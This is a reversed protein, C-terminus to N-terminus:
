ACRLFRRDRLLHTSRQRTTFLLLSLSVGMLAAVAWYVTKAAGTSMQAARFSTLLLVGLPAFIAIWGLLNPGVVGGAQVQFFLGALEASSFLGFAV